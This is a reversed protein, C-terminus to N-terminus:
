EKGREKSSLFNTIKNQMEIGADNWGWYYDDRHHEKPCSKILNNSFVHIKQATDERVRAEVEKRQNKVSAIVEKHSRWNIPLRKAQEDEQALKVAFLAEKVTVMEETEGLSNFDESPISCSKLYDEARSM